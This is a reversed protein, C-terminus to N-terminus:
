RGRLSTEDAGARLSQLLKKTIHRPSQAGAGRQRTKVVARPDASAAARMTGALARARATSQAHTNDDTGDEEGQEEVAVENAFDDLLRKLRELREPSDLLRFPLRKEVKNFVALVKKQDASFTRSIFDHTWNASVVADSEKGASASLERLRAFMLTDWDAQTGQLVNVVGHIRTIPIRWGPTRPRTWRALMLEDRSDSGRARLADRSAGRMSVKRGAKAQARQFRAWITLLVEASSKVAARSDTRPDRLV